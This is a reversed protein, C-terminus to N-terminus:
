RESEEPMTPSERRHVRTAGAQDLPQLRILDVNVHRPRTAVWVIAEAVDEASLPTMGRYLAAERETDGEYRVRAFETWVLGPAIQCVRIPEGLLELRLTRTLADLAHKSATYGAGGPYVEFGAISGVQVITACPSKRLHPLLAQIMRLCGLVNLEYMGQWREIPASEIPDLGFANGANNVLLDVANLRSAFAAVSAADTVDLPHPYIGPVERALAELRDFRRAGAHVQYGLHALRRAAAEGIGSSAGTVVAVPAMGPM